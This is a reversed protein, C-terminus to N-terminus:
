RSVQMLFAELVFLDKQSRHVNTGKSNNGDHIIRFRCYIYFMWHVCFIVFCKKKHHVDLLGTAIFSFILVGVKVM